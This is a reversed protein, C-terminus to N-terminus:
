PEGRMHTAMWFGIAAAFFLPSLGFVWVMYKWFFIEIRNKGTKLMLDKEFAQLITPLGLWVFSFLMSLMGIPGVILMVVNFFKM